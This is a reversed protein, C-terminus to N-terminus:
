GRVVAGCTGCPRTRAAIRRWERSLSGAHLDAQDFGGGCMQVHPGVREQRAEAQRQDAGAQLGGAVVDDDVARLERGDVPVVQERGVEHADGRGGRGCRCAVLDGLLDARVAHRGDDAARVDGEHGVFRESMGVVDRAALAAVREHELQDVRQLASARQLGDGAQREHAASLGDVVFEALRAAVEIRQRHGVQREDRARRLLAADRRDHGAPAAGEAAVEARHRRHEPTLVAVAAGLVDHRLDLGLLGLRDEEVVVVEGGVLPAELREQAQHDHAAALDRPRRLHAGIDGVVGLEQAEHAVGAAVADRQAELRHALLGEVLEVLRLADGVDDRARPVRCLYPM